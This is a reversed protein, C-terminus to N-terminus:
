LVVVFTSVTDSPAASSRAPVSMAHTPPLTSTLPAWGVRSPAFAPAVPHAAGVLRATTAGSAPSSLLAISRRSKAAASKGAIALM